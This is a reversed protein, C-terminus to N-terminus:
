RALAQHCAALYSETVRVPEHASLYEHRVMESVQGPLLSGNRRASVLAQMADKLEDVNPEVLVGCPGLAQSLGGTNFAIVTDCCAIGELAVIGFGEQCISPIVICHHANLTEALEAGSLTGTFHVMKQLRLQKTLSILSAREPGDGIITLRSEPSNVAVRSFAHLLIDAGKDSVLRGCFVFDYVRKVNELRYFVKSDYANPVIVSYGKINKSIYKSVSINIFYRSLLYKLTGLIRNRLDPLIYVGHHSIVIAKRALLAVPIAKFSFNMFLIVDSRRFARLWDTIKRSRMIKFPLSYDVEDAELNATVIEVVVGAKAAHEAVLMGIRELGGVQPYFPLSFICLRMNCNFALNKNAFSSASV